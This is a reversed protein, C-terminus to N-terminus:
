YAVQKFGMRQYRSIRLPITIFPTPMGTRHGAMAAWAPRATENVPRAQALNLLVRDYGVGTCVQWGGPRIKM